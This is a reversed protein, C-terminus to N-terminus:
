VGSSAAQSWVCGVADERSQRVLLRLMPIADQVNINLVSSLRLLREHIRMERALSQPALFLRAYGRRESGSVCLEFGCPQMSRM